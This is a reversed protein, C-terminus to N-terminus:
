KIGEKIRLREERLNEKRRTKAEETLTRDRGITRFGGKTEGLRGRKVVRAEKMVDELYRYNGFQPALAQFPARFLSQPEGEYKTRQTGQLGATAREGLNVLATPGMQELLWPLGKNALTEGKSHDVIKQGTTANRNQIAELLSWGPGNFLMGQPGPPMRVGAIEKRLQWDALPIMQTWDLLAPRGSPTPVPILLKGQMHPPQSELMNYYDDMTMGSQGMGAVTVTLPVLNAAAYRIPHERAVTTTIRLAELPFSTFPGGAVSGLGAPLPGLAAHGRLWNGLPSTVDYSPFYKNVEIAALTDPMGRAVLTKWAGYRFVQDEMDYAASIKGQIKSQLIRDMVDVVSRAEGPRMLKAYDAGMEVSALGPRVAGLQMARALEPSPNMMGAWWFRTIDDMAAQYHPTNRPNIFSAGTYGTFQIDGVINNLHTPPNDAVKATKWTNILRSIVGVGLPNGITQVADIVDPHVQADTWKRGWIPNAQGGDAKLTVFDRYSDYNPSGKPIVLPRADAGPTTTMRTAMSDWLLIRNQMDLTEGARVAMFEGEMPGLLKAIAPPVNRRKILASYASDLPGQVAALQPNSKLERAQGLIAWLKNDIQEPTAAPFQKAVFARADNWIPKTAPNTKLQNIWDAENHFVRYSKHLYGLSGATYEEDTLLGRDYMLQHNADVQNRFNVTKLQQEPTLKNFEDAKGYKVFGSNDVTASLGRRNFQFEPYPGMPSQAKQQEVFKMYGRNLLKLNGSSIRADPAIFPAALPNEAMVEGVKIALPKTEQVTKLFKSGEYEAEIGFFEDTWNYKPIIQRGLVDTKQILKSGGPVRSLPGRAMSAVKSTLGIAPLMVTPANLITDIVTREPAAAMQSPDGTRFFEGMAPGGIATGATGRLTTGPKEGLDKFYETTDVGISKWAEMGADRVPDVDEKRSPSLAGVALTGLAAPISAINAATEKIATGARGLSRGVTGMDYTTRNPKFDGTTAPTPAPPGFYENLNKDGEPEEVPPASAGINEQSSTIDFYESLNAM